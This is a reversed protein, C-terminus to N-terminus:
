QSSAADGEFPYPTGPPLPTFTSSLRFFRWRSERICYPRFGARMCGKLAGVNDQGVFTIVQQAGTTKALEAIKWMANSMVGEGRHSALTFAGELLMQDSELQPHSSSFFDAIRDNDESGMLWQMYCPDGDLTVAVYCTPIKSELLLRRQSLFFFEDSSSAATMDLVFPLDGNQLPRVETATRAAPAPFAVTLDRILGFSTENSALVSRLKKFLIGLHGRRILMRATSSQRKSIMTSLSPM